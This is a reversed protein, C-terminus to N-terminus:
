AASPSAVVSALLRLALDAEPFNSVVAAPECIEARVVSQGGSFSNPRLNACLPCRGTLALKLGCEKKIARYPVVRPLRRARVKAYM